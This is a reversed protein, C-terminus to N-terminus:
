CTYEHEEEGNVEDACDVFDSISLYCDCPIVLACQLCCEFVVVDTIVALASIYELGDVLLLVKEIDFPFWAVYSSM